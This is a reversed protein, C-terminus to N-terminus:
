AIIAQARELFLKLRRYDNGTLLSFTKIFQSVRQHSLLDLNKQYALLALLLEDLAGTGILQAGFLLPLYHNSAFFHSSLQAPCPGVFTHLAPPEPPTLHQIKGEHQYGLNICSFTTTLLEFIQPQEQLLEQETKQYAHPYRNQDISGTQMQYVIGFYTRQLGHAIMLSGFAPYYNWSWSQARWQQLSSEIIEARATFSTELSDTKKSKNM